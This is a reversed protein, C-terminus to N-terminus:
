SELIHLEKGYIVPVLNDALELSTRLFYDESGGGRFGIRFHEDPNQFSEMLPGVGPARQDLHILVLRGLDIRARRLKGRAAM